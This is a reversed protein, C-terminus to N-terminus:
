YPEFHIDSARSKLAKELIFNVMTIVPADDVGAQVVSSAGKAGAEDEEVLELNEIDKDKLFEDFNKAETYFSSAAEALKMSPVLVLNVDCGTLHKVDDFVRLQFPNNTALTLLKGIRGVPFVHHQEVFKRSLLSLVESEFQMGQLNLTPIGLQESLFDIIDEEPVHKGEELIRFISENRKHALQEIKERDQESVGTKKMWEQVIKKDIM